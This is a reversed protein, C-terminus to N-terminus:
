DRPAFSSGSISLRLSSFPSQGDPISCSPPLAGEPLTLQALLPFRKAAVEDAANLGPASIACLFWVLVISPKMARHDLLYYADYQVYHM